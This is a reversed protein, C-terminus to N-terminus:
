PVFYSGVSCGSIDSYAVFQLTAGYNGNVGYPARVQFDINSINTDAPLDCAIALGYASGDHNPNPINLWASGNYIQMNNPGNEGTAPSYGQKCGDPSDGDDGDSSSCIYYTSSNYDGLAYMLVDVTIDGNNEVTFNCTSGDADNAKSDDCVGDVGAYCYYQFDPSLNYIAWSKDTTNDTEYVSIDMVSVTLLDASSNASNANTSNCLVRFNYSGATNGTVNFYYNGSSNSALNGISYNTINVYVDASTSTNSDSWDGTRNDQIIIYVNEATGGSSTCNGFYTTNEGTGITTPGTFDSAPSLTVGASPATMFNVTPFSGSEITPMWKDITSYDGKTFTLIYNVEDTTTADTTNYRIRFGETNYTTDNWLGVDQFTINESENFRIWAIVNDNVSDGTTSNDYILSYNSNTYSNWQDPTLDAVLGDTGNELHYRDDSINTGMIGAMPSFLETYESIVEDFDSIRYLLYDVDGSQMSITINVVVANGGVLYSTTTQSSNPQIWKYYEITGSSDTDEKCVYFTNGACNMPTYTPNDTDCDSATNQPTIDCWVEDWSVNFFTEGKVRSEDISYNATINVIGPNAV